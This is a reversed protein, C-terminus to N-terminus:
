LDVNDGEFYKGQSAVCQWLYQEWERCYQFDEHPLARLQDTVVKQINDVTGFHCGQLHFKLKPFLFFDCQSLDPSYPSQPVVLFGRKTFFENVSITTHCPTNDHHLMWFHVFEPQFSHVRKRLWELVECYYQQNVTQGQPVLDKHVVGQSNFFLIAHIENEIQENRSEKPMTLQEHAVRFKSTQNRSWVQFDVIQWRNHHKFFSKDNKIRELLDLCVNRRNEKQKNTLNKPVLKAFIKQRSLEETLIDHVTRHNLNLESGIMRVTLRWDSRVLARAKSFNKDMKSTCLRGSHPKDEM